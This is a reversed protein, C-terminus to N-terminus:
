RMSEALFTLTADLANTASRSATLRWALTALRMENCNGYFSVHAACKLDDNIYLRRLWEVNSLIVHFGGASVGAIAIRNRDIRPDAAVAKLASFADSAVNLPSDANLKRGGSYRDLLLVAYGKRVLRLNVANEGNGVGTASHMVIVAPHKRSSDDPVTWRGALTILQEPKPAQRAQSPSEFEVLRHICGRGEDGPRQMIRKAVGQGLSAGAISDPRVALGAM